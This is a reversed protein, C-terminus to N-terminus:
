ATLKKLLVIQGLHYADHQLIGQLHEYYNLKGPAYMKDLILDNTEALFLIIAAQSDEFRKQTEKWARESIDTIEEIFNTAPAQVTKGKIRLLCTERWAILHNVIQWISNLGKLKIAAQIASIDKLTDAINVDIWPSGNYHDSILKALRTVEKKM